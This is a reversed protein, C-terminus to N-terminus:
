PTKAFEQQLSELFNKTSNCYVMEIAPPKLTNIRELAATLLGIAEEKAFRGGLLSHQAILGDTSALDIAFYTSEPHEKLIEARLRATEQLNVLADTFCREKAAAQAPDALKNAAMRQAIGIAQYTNAVNRKWDGNTQDRNSLRRFMELARRYSVIAEELRGQNVAIHGRQNIALAYERQFGNKENEPASEEPPNGEYYRVTPENVKQYIDSRGSSGLYDAVEYQVIGLIDQAALRAKAVREKAAIAANKEEDARQREREAIQRQSFAWVAVLIAVLALIRAIRSARLAQRRQHEAETRANEAIQKQETEWLLRANAEAERRGAEENQRLLDRQTLERPSLGLSGSLLLLRAEDLQIRYKVVAQEIRAPLWEEAAQLLSRYEDATTAGHSGLPPRLDIYIPHEKEALNLSGDARLKHRLPPPYCEDAPDHAHPNGSIVIAIISNTRGLKKFYLIEDSVWPSRAAAPTCLVILVRSKELADHILGGLDGHAPLEDKDRFVRDMTAPVPDGYLSNQGALEPPTTYRELTTQVWSAWQQGPEASDLHRYSVFASFEYETQPM